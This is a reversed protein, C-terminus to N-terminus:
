TAVDSESSMRRREFIPDGPAGASVAAFRHAGSYAMPHAFYRTKAIALGWGTKSDDTLSL